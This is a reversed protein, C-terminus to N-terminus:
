VEFFVFLLKTTPQQPTEHFRLALCTASRIKPRENFHQTVPLMDNFAHRPQCCKAPDTTPLLEVHLHGIVINVNEQM